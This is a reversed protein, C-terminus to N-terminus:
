HDKRDQNGNGSPRSSSPAVPQSRNEQAPMSQIIPAPRSPAPRPPEPRVPPNDDRGGVGAVNGVIPSKPIKVRQSTASEPQRSPRDQGLNERAPEAAQQVNRSQVHSNESASVPRAQEESPRMTAQSAAQQRAKTSEVQPATNGPSEWKVRADRYTSLNKGQDGLAKRRNQDIKVFPTATAHRASVEALPAAILLNAREQAPAQAARAAQASYTRAPRAEAHQQRFQYNALLNAGWQSDARGHEWKQQAYIPDYGRHNQDIAFWPRIGKQSYQDGYYDGFYYHRSSASVFLDTTLLGAQIAVSPSYAYGPRSYVSPQVYIPAFLVGRRDLSRDWYGDNYIYGRSSWLYHSPEWVWDPRAPVWYGPQWAYQNDTWAWNGPTWLQDAAPSPSSPGVELSDPPKPLYQVEDSNADM